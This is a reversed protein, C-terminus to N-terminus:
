EYNEKSITTKECREKFFQKVFEQNRGIGQAALYIVWKNGDAFTTAFLRMPNLFFCMFLGVLLLLFGGFIISIGPIFGVSLGTVYTQDTDVFVVSYAARRVTKDFDPYRRFIHFYTEERNATKELIRVAQGLGAFDEYIKTAMINSGSPLIISDNLKTRHITARDGETIKLMILKESIIPKFSAQYFTFGMYSLPDNVRVTKRFIERASANAIYLDSEYEMPSDDVFTKLRFDDCGVFFGLDYKFRLGGLGKASVFRSKTGEELMLDGDIGRQTAYISSFMIILLSTHVVYVGYRAFDAKKFFWYKQGNYNLIKPRLGSFFGNIIENAEDNSQALIVKKINLGLFRRATLYPRPRKAELYIRPLKEISCAILNASLLFVCLSFWWSHFADFVEFFIFIEKLTEGQGSRRFFEEYGLTQDFCMGIVAGIAIILLLIFTLKLSIFLQWLSELFWKFDFFIRKVLKPTGINKHM